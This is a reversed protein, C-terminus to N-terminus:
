IKNWYPHLYLQNDQRYLGKYSLMFIWNWTKVYNWNIKWIILSENIDHNKKIEALISQDLISFSANIDSLPQLNKM